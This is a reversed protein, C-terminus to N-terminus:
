RRMAHRAQRIDRLAVMEAYIPAFKKYEADFEIKINRLQERLSEEDESKMAIAKELESEKARLRARVEGYADRAPVYRTRLEAWRQELSLDEATSAEANAIETSGASAATGSKAPLLADSKATTTNEPPAAHVSREAAPPATEAPSKGDFSDSCGSLTAFALLAFIHKM